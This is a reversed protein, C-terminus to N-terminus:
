RPQMSEEVCHLIGSIVIAEAVDARQLPPIKQTAPRSAQSDASQRGNEPETSVATVTCPPLPVERSLRLIKKCLAIIWTSGENRPM